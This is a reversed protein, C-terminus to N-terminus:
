LSRIRYPVITSQLQASSSFAGDYGTSRVLITLPALLPSLNSVVMLGIFAVQMVGIMEVGIFKAFFLGTLFMAVSGYALVMAMINM